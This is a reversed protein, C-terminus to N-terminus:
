DKYTNDHCFKYFQEKMEPTVLLENVVKGGNEMSYSYNNKICKNVMNKFLHNTHYRNTSPPIFVINNKQKNHYCEVVDNEDYPTKYKIDTDNSAYYRFQSNSDYKNVLNNSEYVDEITNDSVKQDLWTNIKNM